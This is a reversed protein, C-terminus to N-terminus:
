EREGRRGRGGREGKRRLGLLVAASRRLSLIDSRSPPLRSTPASAEREARVMRMRKAERGSGRRGRAKRTDGHILPPSKEEDPEDAEDGM